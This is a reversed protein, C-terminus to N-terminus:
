RLYSINEISFIRYIDFICLPIYRYRQYVCHEMFCESQKTRHINVSKSFETV